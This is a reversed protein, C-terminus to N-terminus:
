LNSLDIMCPRSFNTQRARMRGKQNNEKGGTERVSIQFGQRLGQIKIQDPPLPIPPTWPYYGWENDQLVIAEEVMEPVEEGNWTTGSHHYHLEWEQMLHIPHCDHNALKSTSLM